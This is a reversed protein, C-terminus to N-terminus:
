LIVVFAIAYDKEHSISLLSKKNAFYPKNSKKKVEISLWNIKKGIAKMYAEKAAIIGALHEATFPSLESKHFMRSLVQKNRLIKEVKPIYVIDVGAGKKM